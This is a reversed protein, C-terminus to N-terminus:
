AGIKMNLVWTFGMFFPDNSMKPMRFRKNSNQSYTEWLEKYIGQQTEHSKNGLGFYWEWKWWGSSPGLISIRTTMILSWSDIGKWRSHSVIQVMIFAWSTDVNCFIYFTYNIGDRLKIMPSFWLVPDAPSMGWFAWTNKWTVGLTQMHRSGMFYEKLLLEREYNQVM